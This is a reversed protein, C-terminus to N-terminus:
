KFIQLKESMDYGKAPDIIRVIYIGNHLHSLNITSQYQGDYVRQGMLNYVLM